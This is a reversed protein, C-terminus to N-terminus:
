QGAGTDPPAAGVVTANELEKIMPALVRRWHEETIPGTHKHRIRGAADVVFTEPAGTVGFEIAVRGDADDGILTYPDGHRQLWQSGDGPKDKWNLGYIPPGGEAKIRMLVPHEVQCSVCWSGFVNVLSVRGTLNETSLGNDYGAIPPLDFAPAPRDILMSPLFGPDRQLGAAFYLVLVLFVSIPALFFIKSM